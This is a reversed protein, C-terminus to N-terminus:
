LATQGIPLTVLDLSEPQKCFGSKDSSMGINQGISIAKITTKITKKIITKEYNM